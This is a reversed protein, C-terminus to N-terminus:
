CENKLNSQVFAFSSAPLTSSGLETQESGEDDELDWYLQPYSQQLDDLKKVLAQRESSAGPPLSVKKLTVHLFKAV